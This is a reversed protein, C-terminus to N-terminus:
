EKEYFQEAKMAFKILDETVTFIPHEGSAFEKIVHYSGERSGIAVRSGERGFQVITFRSRPVFDLRDYLYVEAGASILQSMISFRRSTCIILENRRAKSTLLEITDLNEAWSMDRTWIAVRGGESILKFMYQNISNNDNIKYVSVRANELIDNIILYVFLITALFLIIYSWINLQSIDPIFYM